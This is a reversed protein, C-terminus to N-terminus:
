ASLRRARGSAFRLSRFAVSVLVVYGEATIRAHADWVTDFSLDWGKGETYTGDQQVGLANVQFGVAHTLDRFTDFQV